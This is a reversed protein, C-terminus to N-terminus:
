ASFLIRLPPVKSRTIQVVTVSFQCSLTGSPHKFFLVWDTNVTFGAMSGAVGSCASWALHHVLSKPWVFLFQVGFLATKSILIAQGKPLLKRPWKGLFVPSVSSLSASVSSFLGWLTGPGSTELTPSPVPGAGKQPCPM